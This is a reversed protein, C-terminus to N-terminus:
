APKEIFAVAKELNRDTPRINRVEWNIVTDETVGILAALEKIQLGADM